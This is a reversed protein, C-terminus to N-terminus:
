YEYRDKKVYGEQAMVMLLGIAFTIAMFLAIVGPAFLFLLLYGAIKLPLNQRKEQKELHRQYEGKTMGAM